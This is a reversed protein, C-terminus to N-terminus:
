GRLLKQGYYRVPDWHQAAEADFDPNPFLRMGVIGTEYGYYSGVPFDRGNLKTGRSGIKVGPYKSEDEFPDPACGARRKDLWLGWREPDPGQAEEFCPDNVLGLYEWRRDHRFNPDIKELESHTSLVKLFDLAGASRYILTNWLRDDGATWVIWTNRGRILASKDNDPALAKLDIGGDMDHFYDVDSAVFSAADRGALLAEDKVHGARPQAYWHLVYATVLAAIAVFLVLLITLRVQGVKKSM